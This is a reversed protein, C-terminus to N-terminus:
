QISNIKTGRTYHIAHNQDMLNAITSNLHPLIPKMPNKQKDCCYTLVISRRFSEKLMQVKDVESVLEM